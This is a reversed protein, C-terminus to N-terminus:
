RGWQVAIEIVSERSTLGGFYAMEIASRQERPLALLANGVYRAEDATATTMSSERPACAGRGARAPATPLFHAPEPRSTQKKLTSVSAGRRKPIHGVLAPKQGVKPGTRPRVRGNAKESVM